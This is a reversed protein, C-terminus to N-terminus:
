FSTHISCNLFDKIMTLAIREQKNERADKASVAAPKDNSVGAGGDVVAAGDGTDPRDSAVLTDVSSTVVTWGVTVYVSSHSSASLM